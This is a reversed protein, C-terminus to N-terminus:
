KIFAQIKTKADEISTFDPQKKILEAIDKNLQEAEAASKAKEEPTKEKGKFKATDFYKRKVEAPDFTKDAGERDNNVIIFNDGFANKFENVNQNVSKWTRLVITPLLSRGRSVNQELSTMPSVYVMLMMTEYGLDELQKKKKLVPNIAGGPSDIIIDHLNEVATDYKGQTTKRAQAMLQAAKSLEEPGFDKQNMGIGSAKLMEEYTDDVNIVEFQNIPLQKSIFTKGAGAPGTLFIAKPKNSEQAERLIDILKIM